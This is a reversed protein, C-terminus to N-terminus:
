LEEPTFAVVEDITGPVQYTINNGSRSFQVNEGTEMIPVDDRGDAEEPEVPQAEPESEQDEGAEPAAADVPQPETTEAPPQGADYEDVPIRSPTCASIALIVVVIITVLFISKKGTKM